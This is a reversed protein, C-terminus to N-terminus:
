GIKGFTVSMQIAAALRELFETRPIERAGLSQTVPTLMQTDFLVYGRTRLHEILRVLGVKSADTARHFMSEGAFCGGTAVGYLGGALQDDEWVEISHADGLQHLQQYAEIFEETIWTRQGDRPAAACARIVEPFAQDSTVRFGSRRISRGLSRSIHLEDLELIGRPDPSWWTIPSVSWPFVGTAYALRLWSPSFDGGIAVLGDPRALRPDPFFPAVRNPM